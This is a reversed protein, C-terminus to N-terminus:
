DPRFVVVYKAHATKGCRGRNALFLRWTEGAAVDQATVKVRSVVPKGTRVWGRNRASGHRFTVTLKSPPGHWTVTVTLVGPQDIGDFDRWWVRGSQVIKTGEAVVIGGPVAAPAEQGRRCGCAVVAVAVLVLVVGVRRM